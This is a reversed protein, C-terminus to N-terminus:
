ASTVSCCFCLTNPFKSPLSRRRQVRDARAIVGCNPYLEFSCGFPSCCNHRSQANDQGCVVRFFIQFLGDAGHLALSKGVPLQNQDVVTRAVARGREAVAERSLVATHPDDVLSVASKGSCAVGTHRRRLPIVERKQVRVVIERRLGIFLEKGRQVCVAGVAGAAAVGHGIVVRQALRHQQRKGGSSM